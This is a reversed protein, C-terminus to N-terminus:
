QGRAIQVGEAKAADEAELQKNLEIAAQWEGHVKPDDVWELIYGNPAHARYRDHKWDSTLGMDHKAFDVSSSLHEALCHGDEALACGLVDGGVTSGRVLGSGSHLPFAALFIRM